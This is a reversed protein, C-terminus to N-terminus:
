PKEGRERFTGMSLIGQGQTYHPQTLANDNAKNAKPQTRDALAAPRARKKADLADASM